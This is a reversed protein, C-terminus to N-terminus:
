PVKNTAGRHAKLSLAPRFRCNAHSDFESVFVFSGCIIAITVKLFQQDARQCASGCAYVCDCGSGPLLAQIRGLAVQFESHAELRDDPSSERLREAAQEPTLDRQSEALMEYGVMFKKVTASRLLLHISMHAYPLQWASYDAGDTPAGHWGFSYPFSTDFLADYGVLLRRLIDALADREAITLERCVCRTVDHRSCCRLPWVPGGRCWSVLWHLMECSRHAGERDVRPSCMTSCYPRRVPKSGNNSSECARKASSMPSTIREGLDARASAPQLMGHAVGKNEFVQVWQWRRGLDAIQEAWTDM